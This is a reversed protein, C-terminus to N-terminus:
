PLALLPASIGLEPILLWLIVGVLAILILTGLSTLCGGAPDQAPMQIVVQPQQPRNWAQQAAVFALLVLFILGSFILTATM